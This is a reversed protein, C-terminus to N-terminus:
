FSMEIALFFYFIVNQSFVVEKVGQSRIKNSRFEIEKGCWDREREERM